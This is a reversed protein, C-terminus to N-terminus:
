RRCALLAINATEVVNTDADTSLRRLAAVKRPDDRVALADAVVQRIAPCPNDVLRLLWTAAARGDLEALAEAIVCRVYEDSVREILRGLCVATEEDPVAVLADVIEPIDDIAATQLRAELIKKVPRHRLSGLAILAADVVETRTDNCLEM